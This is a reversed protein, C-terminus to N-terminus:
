SVGRGSTDITRAADLAAAEAAPSVCDVDLPAFQRMTNTAIEAEGATRARVCIATEGNRILNMYKEPLDTGFIWDIFNEERKPALTDPKEEVKRLVKIAIDAAPVGEYVLRTRVDEADGLTPYVGIVVQDPM